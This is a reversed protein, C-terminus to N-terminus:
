SFGRGPPRRQPRVPIAPWAAGSDLAAMQKAPDEFQPVKIGSGAIAKGAASLARGFGAAGGGGFLGGLTGGPSPSVGSVIPSPTSEAVDGVSPSLGTMDEFISTKPPAMRTLESASLGSLDRPQDPPQPNMDPVAQDAFQNPVVPPVGGRELRAEWAQMFEGSTATRWNLGAQQPINRAIAAQSWLGKSGDPLRYVPGAADKRRGEATNAMNEWALSGPRRLHESIGGPGQQHALYVENWSPDRGLSRALEAKHGAILRGAAQANQHPDFISGQGGGRRFESNSLMFLGNYGGTVARPNGSSEIGAFARMVNHPISWRQAANAIAAEVDSSYRQRAM